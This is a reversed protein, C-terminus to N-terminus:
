QKIIIEMDVEETIGRKQGSLITVTPYNMNVKPFCQQMLLLVGRESNTTWAPSFEIVKSNPMQEIKEKKM